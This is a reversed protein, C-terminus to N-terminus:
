SSLDNTLKNLRERAENQIDEVNKLLYKLLNAIQQDSLTKLFANM